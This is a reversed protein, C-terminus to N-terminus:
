TRLTAGLKAAAAIVKDAIAKLEADVFAKDGPQLSVEVAMSKDGGGQDNAREFVDFIRAAAISAKDSGRIARILADAALEAPVTFAFDRTVAQLAPPTYAPRMFGTGRKAPLADLYLEVAAVPGSLDFAKTVSPHVIGFAALM